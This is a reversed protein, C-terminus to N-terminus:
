YIYLFIIIMLHTNEVFVDREAKSVHRIKTLYIFLYKFKKISRFAFYILYSIKKLDRQHKRSLVIPVLM